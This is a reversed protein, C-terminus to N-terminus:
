ANKTSNANKAAANGGAADGADKAAGEEASANSSGDWSAGKDEDSQPALPSPEDKSLVAAYVSRTVRHEDGSMDLEQVTLAVNTSATFYLYKGNRDFIPHLADSMGDTVQLSKHQELSYVYIAHLGSKLE